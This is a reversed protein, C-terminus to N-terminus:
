LRIHRTTWLFFVVAPALIGAGIVVGWLYPSVLAEGLLVMQGTARGPASVLFRTAYRFLCVLLLYAPGAGLFFGYVIGKLFSMKNDM